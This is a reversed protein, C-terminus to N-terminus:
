SSGRSYFIPVWEPTKAQFMGHASSCPPSYDTPDCLTLCLQTVLVKVKTVLNHRFRQSGISQLRGPEGTWPSRWAPISSCTEMDKLLNELGPILSVDRIGGANARPNKVVLAAKDQLVHSTHTLRAPCTGILGRQM